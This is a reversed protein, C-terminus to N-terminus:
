WDASSTRALRFLSSRAAQLAAAAEALIVCPPPASSPTPYSSIRAMMASATEPFSVSVFSEVFDAALFAAAAADCDLLLCSVEEPVPEPPWGRLCDPPVAPFVQHWCLMCPTTRTM